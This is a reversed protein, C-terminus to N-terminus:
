EGILNDKTIVKYAKVCEYSFKKRSVTHCKDYGAASCIYVHVYYLIYIYMRIYM